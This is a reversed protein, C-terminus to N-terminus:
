VARRGNADDIYENNDWGASGALPRRPKDCFGPSRELIQM